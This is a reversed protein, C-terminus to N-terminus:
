ETVNIWDGFDPQYSCSGKERDTAWLIPYGPDTEPADYVGMDTFYILVSPADAMAVRDFVPTFRTGGGGHIRSTDLPVGRTYTQDFNVCSNCAMVRVSEYDVNELIMVLETLFRNLLDTDISGSNDVAVVVNGCGSPNLRNGIIGSSLLRRNPPAMSYNSGGIRQLYRELEKPWDVRPELKEFVRKETDSGDKGALSAGMKAQAIKQSVEREADQMTQGPKLPYDMVDCDGDGIEPDADADPLDTYIMEASKGDIRELTWDPLQYGLDQALGNIAHDCAVNFRKPDREGRRLPHRCLVHLAEHVLVARLHVNDALETECFQTNVFIHVGDTAMTPVDDRRDYEYRMSRLLAGIWPHRRAIDDIANAIRKQVTNM